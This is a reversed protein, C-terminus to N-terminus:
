PPDSTGCLSKSGTWQCFGKRIMSTSEQMIDRSNGRVKLARRERLCENGVPCSM